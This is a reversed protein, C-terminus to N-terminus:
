GSLDKLDFKADYDVNFWPLDNFDTEKPLGITGDVDVYTMKLAEAQQTETNYTFTGFGPQTYSAGTMGPFIVKNLYYDSEAEQKKKGLATPVSATRLGALHDHGTVEMVIKDRNAEMLEM